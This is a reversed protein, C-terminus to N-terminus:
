NINVVLENEGSFSLRATEKGYGSIIKTSHCEFLVNSVNLVHLKPNVNLQISHKWMVDCLSRTTGRESLGDHRVRFSVALFFPRAFDQVDCPTCTSFGTPNSNKEYTFV